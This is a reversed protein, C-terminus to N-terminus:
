KTLRLLVNVNKSLKLPSMSVIPLKSLVNVILYYNSPPIHVKERKIINKSVSKKKEKKRVTM